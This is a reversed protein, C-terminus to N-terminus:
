RLLVSTISIALAVGSFILALIDIWKDALYSLLDFKRFSKWNLGKYSLSFSFNQGIDSKQFDVYGLDYLFRINARLMETDMNLAEAMKPLGSGFTTFKELGGKSILYDLIIKSNKDLM